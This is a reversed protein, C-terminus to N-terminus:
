LYCKQNCSSSHDRESEVEDKFVYERQGRAFEVLLLTRGLNETISVLAGEKPLLRGTKKSRISRTLSLKEGPQMLVELLKLQNQGKEKKCTALAVKM